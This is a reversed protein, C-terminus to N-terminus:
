TWRWRCSAARHLGFRAADFSAEGVLTVSPLGDPVAPGDAYRCASPKVDRPVSTLRGMLERGNGLMKMRGHPLAAVGGGSVAGDYSSTM